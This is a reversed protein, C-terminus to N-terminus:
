NEFPIKGCLRDYRIDPRGLYEFESLFLVGYKRCVKKQLLDCLTLYDSSTAGGTNVIFGAHTESVQAGGFSSGKLGMRDIYEAISKDNNRLFACGLSPLHPQTSRRLSLYKWRESDIQSRHRKTVNITASLVIGGDKKFISTRYGFDCKNASLTIIEGDRYVDVSDLFDCFRYGYAGINNYVAAGITSPLGSAWELGSLGRDRMFAIVSAVSQGCEAKVRECGDAGRLVELGKIRTTCVAIGDYGDDSILTYAGTGLLCYNKTSKSLIDTVRCLTEANEPYLVTDLRGGSLFASLKAGSVAHYIRLHAIKKIIDIESM